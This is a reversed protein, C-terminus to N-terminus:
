RRLELRIEGFDGKGARQWGLREYFREARTGPDTTLWLVEAGQAWLWEVMVQHLRQGYGRGEANPHVFLAWISSTAANGIAFGAIEGDSELVWGRGTEEIAERVEEASITMGEFLRNERVANRVRSIEPIDERKAQRLSQTPM